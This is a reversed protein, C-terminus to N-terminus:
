SKWYHFNCPCWDTQLKKNNWLTRGNEKVMGGLGKLIISEDYSRQTPHPKNGLWFIIDQL